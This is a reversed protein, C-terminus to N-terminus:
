DYEVVLVVVSAGNRCPRRHKRVKRVKTSIEGVVKNDGRTLSPIHLRYVGIAGISKPRAGRGIPINENIAVAAAKRARLNEARRVLWDHNDASGECYVQGDRRYETSPCVPDLNLGIHDEVGLALPFPGVSHQLRIRACGDPIWATGDPAACLP